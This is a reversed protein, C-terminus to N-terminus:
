IMNFSLDMSKIFDKCVNEGKFKYMDSFDKVEYRKNIFFPVINYEKWLYKAGKMGAADRDYLSIIRKYYKKLHRIFDAHFKHTEGHIAMAEIGFRRMCIVDKMSKTLVLNESEGKVTCQDYGQIDTYNSVNGFFRDANSFPHYCKIHTRDRWESEPFVYVYSPDKPTYDYVQVKNRFVKLAARVNYRRLLDETIGYSNWYDLDSQNFPRSMFQLFLNSEQIFNRENARLSDINPVRTSKYECPGDLGLSFDTNIICLAGHYNVRYIMMIYSYIDWTNGKAFDHALFRNNKDSYFIRFSPNRDVRYPACILKGPQFDCGIYFGWLMLESVKEQINEKTLQERIELTYM